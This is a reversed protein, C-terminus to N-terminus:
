RPELDMLIEIAPRRALPVRVGDVAPVFSDEFLTRWAAFYVGSWEPNRAFVQPRWDARPPPVVGVRGTARMTDDAREIADAFGAKDLQNFLEPRFEPGSSLDGVILLPDGEDEAQLRRVIRRAFKERKGPTDDPTSLEEVGSAFGQLAAIRIAGVPLTVRTILMGKEIMGRPEPGGKVPDFRMDAFPRNSLIVHGCGLRADRGPGKFAVNPYRNRFAHRLADIRDLDYVEQLVVIDADQAKLGDVLADFRADAHASGPLVSGGLAVPPRLEANFALLRLTRVKPSRTAAAPKEVPFVGPSNPRQPPQIPYATRGAQDNAPPPTVGPRVFFRAQPAAANTNRRDPGEAGMDLDVDRYSVYDDNM